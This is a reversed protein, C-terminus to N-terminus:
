APPKYASKGAARIAKVGEAETMLPTTILSRLAGGAAAAISFSAAAANDPMEAILVVDHEGFAYYSAVMKGGSDKMMKAVATLRNTPKKVQGAWSQPTYAAQFMYM